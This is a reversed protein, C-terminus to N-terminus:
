NDLAELEALLAARRAEKAAERRERETKIAAELAELEALSALNLNEASRFCKVKIEHSTPKYDKCYIKRVRGTEIAIYKTGNAEYSIATKSGKKFHHAKFYESVTIRAGDSFEAVFPLKQSSNFVQAWNAGDALVQFIELSEKKKAM